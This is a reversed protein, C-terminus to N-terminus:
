TFTHLEGFERRRMPVFGDMDVPRLDAEEEEDEM